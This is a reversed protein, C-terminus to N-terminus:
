DCMDKFPYSVELEKLNEYNISSKSASPICPINPANELELLSSVCLDVDFVVRNHSKKNEKKHESKKLCSIPKKERIDEPWAIGDFVYPINIIDIDSFYNGFEDNFLYSECYELYMDEGQYDDSMTKRAMKLIKPM